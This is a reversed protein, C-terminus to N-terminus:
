LINSIANKFLDSELFKDIQAVSEYYFFLQTYEENSNLLLTPDVSLLRNKYYDSHLIVKIGDIFLMCFYQRYSIRIGDYIEFAKYIPNGLNDNRGCKFITIILRLFLLQIDKRSGFLKNQIYRGIRVTKATVTELVVTIKNILHIKHIDLSYASYKQKKASAINSNFPMASIFEISSTETINFSKIYDYRIKGSLIYLFAKYTDNFTKDFIVRDNINLLSGIEMFLQAHKQYEKIISAGTHKTSYDNVFNVVVSNVLYLFKVNVKSQIANEFRVEYNHKNIEKTLRSIKIRFM